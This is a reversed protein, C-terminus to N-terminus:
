IKSNREVAKNQKTVSEIPGFMVVYEPFIRFWISVLSEGSKKATVKCLGYGMVLNKGLSFQKM